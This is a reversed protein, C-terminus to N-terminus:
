NLKLYKKENENKIREIELKSSILKRKTKYSIYIVFISFVSIIGSSLIVTYIISLDEM